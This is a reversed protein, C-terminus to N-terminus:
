TAWRTEDAIPAHVVAPDDHCWVGELTTAFDAGLLSSPTHFGHEWAGALVREAVRAATTGTFAYAEPTRMRASALLGNANGAEAVLICEKVARQEPTPGAPMLEAQSEMLVRATRSRLLGGLVRNMVTAAQVPLTAEFYVEINAIGTSHWATVVDGWSVGISMRPGDGYDFARQLSGAPFHTLAHARRVAVPSGMQQVVTRYSGRSMYFLGRIGLMLWTAEPARAAVRAALCDSPLVDFGIGPLLMVGRERAEASRAALQTFVDVEGTVDLYHSRTRMCADVIPRATRVFPGAANVVVACTELAADLEAPVDCRACRYELGGLAEAVSKLKGPNRGCLVPTLGRALAGEAILRGTYGTAGYILLPDSM